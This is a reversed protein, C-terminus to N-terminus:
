GEEDEFVKLGGRKRGGTRKQQKGGVKKREKQVKGAWFVFGNKKQKGKGETREGGKSVRKKRGKQENKM